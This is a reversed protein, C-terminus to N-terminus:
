QGRDPAIHPWWAALDEAHHVGEIALTADMMPFRRGAPFHRAYSPPDLVVVRTGNIAPIDAPVGENYIWAGHGDVLNWPSTVIVKGPPDQNTFWAIWDPPLPEGPMCGPRGLLAGGLLMHLQFNDGVGAITVTWGQRSARDLVLLREGELVRLLDRVYSMHPHYEAAEGAIDAKRERDPVAGRVMASNQLITTTGMAFQPLSFWALMASVAADGLKPGITDVIAQSPADQEMDPPTDGTAESWARAFALAETTVQTAREVLPLGVPEPSAGNEVWAGSMVALWGAMSPQAKALGDALRPLAASLVAPPVQQAMGMLRPLLDSFAPNETIAAQVLADCTRLFDESM